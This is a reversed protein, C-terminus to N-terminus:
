WPSLPPVSLLNDFKERVRDRSPLCSAESFRASLRNSFSAALRGSKAGGTVPDSSIV